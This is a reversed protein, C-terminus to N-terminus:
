ILVMLYPLLPNHAVVIGAVDYFHDNFQTINTFFASLYVSLSPFMSLSHDLSVAFVLSLSLFSPSVLGNVLCCCLWRTFPSFVTFFLSFWRRSIVSTIGCGSFSSFFTNPGTKYDNDMYEHVIYIIMTQQWEDRMLTPKDIDTLHHRHSEPQPFPYSSSGLM